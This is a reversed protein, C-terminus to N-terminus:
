SVIFVLKVKALGFDTIKVRDSTASSVLINELKLDRHSINQRHLYRVCHALQYFQVKVEMESKLRARGGGNKIQDFLDGGKVLEMVLVMMDVTRIVEKIKVLSPHRLRRQINEEKMMDKPKTYQSDWGQTRIMKLAVTEVKKDNNWNKFAKMVVATSGDGLFDTVLYRSTIKSPYLSEMRARDLYQFVKNTPGLLSITTCHELIMQRGEGVKVGNVWTGNTSLDTLAAVEDGVAKSVLFHKRSLQNPGEGEGDKYVEEVVKRCLVERLVISASTDRGVSHEEDSLPHVVTNLNTFDLEQVLWGWVEGEAEKGDGRGGGLLSMLPM